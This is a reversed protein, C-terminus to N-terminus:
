NKMHKYRKIKSVTPLKKPNGNNEVRCRNVYDVLDQLEIRLSGEIRYAVIKGTSILGYVKSNSVRLIEQAIEDVTFFKPISERMLGAKM